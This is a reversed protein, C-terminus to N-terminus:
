SGLLAKLLGWPLTWTISPIGERNSWQLSPCSAPMNKGAHTSVPHEGASRLSLGLTEASIWLVVTCFYISTAAGDNWRSIMLISTTHTM